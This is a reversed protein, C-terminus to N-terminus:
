PSQRSISAPSRSRGSRISRTVTAVGFEVCKSIVLAKRSAPKLTSHSFGIVTVTSSPSSITRCRRALRAPDARDVVAVGAIRQHAVHPRHHRAAIEARDPQDHGFEGMAVVGVGGVGVVRADAPAIVRRLGADRRLEGVAADVRQVHRAEDAPLLDVRSEASKARRCGWGPAPPHRSPSSGCPRRRRRAARSRTRRWRGGARTSRAPTRRSRRAASPAPVASGATRSAARRDARLDDLAALRVERGFGVAGAPDGDAM